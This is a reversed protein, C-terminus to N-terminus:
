RYLRNTIIDTITPYEPLAVYDITHMRSFLNRYSEMPIRATIEYPQEVVEKWNRFPLKIGAISTPTSDKLSM